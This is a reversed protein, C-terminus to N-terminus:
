RYLKSHIELVKKSNKVNLVKFIQKNTEQTKTKMQNYVIAHAITLPLYRNFINSKLNVNRGKQILQQLDSGQYKLKSIGISRIHRNLLNQMNQNNNSSSNTNNNVNLQSKTNRYQLLREVMERYRFVMKSTVQTKNKESRIRNAANTLTDIDIMFGNRKSITILIACIIAKMNMGKFGAKGNYKERLSFLEQYIGKVEDGYKPESYLQQTILDSITKVQAFKYFEKGYSTREQGPIEGQIEEGFVLNNNRKNNNNRNSNKNNAEELQALQAWMMNMQNQSPNM